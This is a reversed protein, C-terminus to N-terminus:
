IQFVKNVLPIKMVICSVGITGVYTFLLFLIPRVIGFYGSPIYHLSLIVPIHLAYVPLFLKSVAKIFRVGTPQTIKCNVLYCFVSTAFMMCLPASFLFEVAHVYPLLLWGFVIYIVAFIIPISLPIKYFYQKYCKAFGGLIFYFLWNWIRFTQIIHTEEFNYLVNLPYVFSEVVFLFVIAVFLGIRKWRNNIYNIFPLLAYLLIMAGLYWFVSFTGKQIFPNVISSFLGGSSFRHYILCEVSYYALAIIAVFKLIGIIKKVSYKWSTKKGILLWGSVMFFLPIAIGSLYGGASLIIDPKVVLPVHLTMVMFMAICKVLDISIDRM